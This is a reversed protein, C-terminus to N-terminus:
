RFPEIRALHQRADDYGPDLRLAENFQVRAENWQGALALAQGLLDYVVPDRSGLAIAERAQGAAEAVDHHDLLAAALNRRADSSRPSIEVARRLPPIAADLAGAGILAVGFNGLTRVDDPRGKLYASYETAAEAFAGQSLLADALVARADLNGPQKGLADRAQAVADPWDKQQLYAKAMVIEAPIVTILLPQLRVFERLEAIAAPLQGEDYLELGLTYHARPSGDVALRLESVGEQRRGAALLQQGLMEHGVPTPWREVTVMALTLPSAYEGNRHVTERALGTSVVGFLIFATVAFSRSRMGIRTLVAHVAIVFLTVLPILPLYMRREAGVETAIPIVSSTPALLIFFAAALFGVAPRRAWAVVTAALLGLIFLAYPLVAGLTVPAPWGYLIVLQDPWAALRMYRAIMVTQNLLYTWVGVGSSFGASHIRPGSWMLAALLVLTSVLGAYLARRAAIAQRFSDFVLVRDLCLVMLPATAMSEKCAMGCACAAIAAASWASRRRPDLARVSAYLTLLYCLGMMSETRQTLYDVVESNLPHLMWIAAIAFALPDSWEQLSAAVRPLRLARRAFGFVALACALHIALNVVHYGFVDTGGIAYNLAFSVNVLPRGSVPLERGPLLIRDLRQWEHIGPNELITLNDDLVLPVRLSNAYAVVATVSLVAAAVIPIWTPPTRTRANRM